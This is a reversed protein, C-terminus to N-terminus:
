RGLLVQKAENVQQALFGSGGHDPHLKKILERHAAAIEGPGAGPELGLVRLAEERSMPESVPRPRESATVRPPKRSSNWVIFAALPLGIMLGRMGFRLSFLLVLVAAIWAM